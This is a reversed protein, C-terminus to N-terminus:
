PQYELFAPDAFGGQSNLGRMAYYKALEEAFRSRDIPPIAIGDGSSGPETFFREPLTDDAATFGNQQNYFRESMWIREGIVMLAQTSYESGTVAALLDAYEELSAGLFALKCAVLSDIAANSDEAIKIMRAKGAFSFRDTPVPKRLIEHAIPYASLHCGGHNGTAYALAMGYVGRPDYAPLELSKVAMALEPRGRAVTLRRSGRALLEGDGRRAAIAELLPGVEAPRPFRGRMEGWAALTAAASIPDLGLDSCLANAAVITQLDAIGNLAGFHSVAEYEPLALGQATRKKCEIPCDDCGYRLPAFARHLAPGAYSACSPFHTKRFNETPTLRRQAMLDVFAPTGFEGLGLEGLLVPSARFLRMVNQRASELRVPDAVVTPLDGAVTIAKLQKSGMVAGLGGRGVAEGDGMVISAYLVGNEGAPGIAAVSGHEALAAVTAAVRKGWLQAAPRLEGGHPTLTLVVPQPSVGVIRVADFGAAKLRRAFPGGASAAFVTGTLPSRSVVVLRSSTPAVTGCLPGVAFLLPLDPDAPDRHYDDRLLRVGLGRGGLYAHLLATPISESRCRGRGLDVHLLRGHWGNM